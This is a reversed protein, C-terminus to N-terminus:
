HIEKERLDELAQDFKAALEEHTDEEIFGDRRLDNLVARRTLLLERRASVLELEELTPHNKVLELLQSRAESEAATIEPQLTEWTHASLEGREHMEVLHRRAARLTLLESRQNEYRVELDPRGVLGLRKLLWEMTTAQLLLMILVVGFTMALITERDQGLSLPLGLALALSVAGRLGGWTLVHQWIFLIEEQTSFRNSLWSLGYVTVVRALTVAAFAIAIAGLHTALLNLEVELGILLFILSNVLFALYEWFNFLVVKTTASMGKPGINGNLIGAAVVALVGSVHVQEALIFSGFALVATITTEILYDDVRAIIQVALWGLGLGVGIGGASVWVLELAGEALSFKGTLTAALVINFLVVAAGDNFLSEGEIITTLKKPAGLASFLATVAVPDTAVILAGFVLAIALTLSTSAAVIGGVIFASVMVGPIALVLITKLSQRLLQFEVHFAAEFLLPPLFLVLILEKTLEFRISGFLTLALGVIVLAVTYPLQIRRVAIAVLSAVLLLEIFVTETQLFNEM